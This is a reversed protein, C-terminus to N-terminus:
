AAPTTTTTTAAAPVETADQSAVISLGARLPLQFQTGGPVSVGNALVLNVATLTIIPEGPATSYVGGAPIPIVVPTAM